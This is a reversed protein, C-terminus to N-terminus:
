LLHSNVDNVYEAYQKKKMYRDRASDERKERAGLHSQRKPKYRVNFQLHERQEQLRKLRLAAVHQEKLQEYSLVHQSLDQNSVSSVLQRQM